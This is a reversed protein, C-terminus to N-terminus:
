ILIVHLYSYGGVPELFDLIYNSSQDNALKEKCSLVKKEITSDLYLTKMDSILAFRKVTHEESLSLDFSM